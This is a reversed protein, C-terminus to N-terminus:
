QTKSILKNDKVFDKPDEKLTDVDIKKKRLYNIKRELQAAELCNYAKARLGVFEKIIKGGIGDKM